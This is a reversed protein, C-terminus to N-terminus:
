VKVGSMMGRVRALRIRYDATVVVGDVSPGFLSAFKYKPLPANVLTQASLNRLCVITEPHQERLDSPLSCNLARALRATVSIGDQVEAWSSLASGSM